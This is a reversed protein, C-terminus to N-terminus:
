ATESSAKEGDTMRCRSSAVLASAALVYAFSSDADLLAALAKMTSERPSISSLCFLISILSSWVEDVAGAKAHAQAREWLVHTQDVGMGLLQIGLPLSLAFGVFASGKQM